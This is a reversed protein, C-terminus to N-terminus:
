TTHHALVITARTQHHDTNTPIVTASETRGNESVTMVDDPVGLSTNLLGVVNSGEEPSGSNANTMVGGGSLVDMNGDGVDKRHDVGIVENKTAPVDGSNRHVFGHFTSLDEVVVQLALNSRMHSEESLGERGDVVGVKDSSVLLLASVIEDRTSILLSVKLVDTGINALKLLVIVKIADDDEPSGVSLPVAVDNRSDVICGIVEQVRDFGRVGLNRRRGKESDSSNEFTFGKDVTSRLVGKNGTDDVESFTMLREDSTVIQLRALGFELRDKGFEEDVRTDLREGDGGVVMESVIITVVQRSLPLELTFLNALAADDVIHNISIAQKVLSGLDAGLANRNSLTFMGVMDNNDLVDGGNAVGLAGDVLVVRLDETTTTVSNADEVFALYTKSV